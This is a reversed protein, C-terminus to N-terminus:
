TKRIYKSKSSKLIHRQNKAIKWLTRQSVYIWNLKGIHSIAQDLMM